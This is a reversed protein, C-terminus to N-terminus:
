SVGSRAGACRCSQCPPPERHMGLNDTVRPPCGVEPRPGGPGRRGMRRAPEFRPRPRGRGSVSLRPSPAGPATGGVDERELHVHIHLAVREPLLREQHEAGAHDQIHRAKGRHLPPASAASGPLDRELHVRLSGRRDPDRLGPQPHALDREAEGTGIMARQRLGHRDAEVFRRLPSAMGKPRTFNRSVVNRGPVTVNSRKPWSISNSGRVNITSLCSCRHRTPSRM